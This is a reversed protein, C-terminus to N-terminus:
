ELMSDIWACFTWCRLVHITAALDLCFEDRTSNNDGENGLFIM